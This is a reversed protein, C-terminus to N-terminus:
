CGSGQQGRGAGGEVRCTWMLSAEPSGRLRDLKTKQWYVNQSWASGVTAGGMTLGSAGVCEGSAWNVTRKSWLLTLWLVTGMPSVLHLSGKKCKFANSLITVGM